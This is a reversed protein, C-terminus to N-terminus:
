AALRELMARAYDLTGDKARLTRAQGLELNV